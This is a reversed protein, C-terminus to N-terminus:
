STTVVFLVFGVGVNGATGFILPWTISFVSLMCTVISSHTSSHIQNLDPYYPCAGPRLESGVVGAVVLDLKGEGRGERIYSNCSNPFM